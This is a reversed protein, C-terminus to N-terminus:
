QLQRSITGNNTLNGPVNFTGGQTQGLDIVVQQGQSVNLNGNSDPAPPTDTALAPLPAALIAVTSVACFLKQVNSLVM